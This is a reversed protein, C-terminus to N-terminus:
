KLIFLTSLNDRASGKLQVFHMLANECRMMMFFLYLDQRSTEASICMLRDFYVVCVNSGLGATSRHISVTLHMQLM